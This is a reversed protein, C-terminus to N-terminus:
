LSFVFVALMLLRLVAPKRYLLPGFDLFAEFAAVVGFLFAAVVGYICWYVILEYLGYRHYWRHRRYRYRAMRFSRNM